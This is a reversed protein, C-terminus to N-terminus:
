LPSNKKIKIFDSKDTQEKILQAKSTIDLFDKGLGVNYM